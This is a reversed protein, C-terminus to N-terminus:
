EAIDELRYQTAFVAPTMLQHYIHLLATKTQAPTPHGACPRYLLDFWVGYVCQRLTTKQAGMRLYFAYRRAALAPDPAHAPTEAEWLLATSGRATEKECLTHLLQGGLGGGRIAPTTAFYDLFAVDCGSAHVVNLYGLLTDAGYAYCASDPHGTQTNCTSQTDQMKQAVQADRVNQTRERHPANTVAQANERAAFVAYPCYRGSDYLALLTKLPRLEDPPFDRQMEHQYLLILEQRTLIKWVINQM